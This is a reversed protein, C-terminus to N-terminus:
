EGESQPKLDMDKVDADDAPPQVEEVADDETNDKGDKKDTGAETTEADADTGEADKAAPDAMFDEDTEMRNEGAVKVQDGDKLGTPDQIVEDGESLGKTIVEQIGIKEMKVKTKKAVGDVYKFVYKEGNMELISEPPLVFGKRPISIQTSFGIQVDEEPEVIFGFKAAQSESQSPSADDSSGSGEGAGSGGGASGGGGHQASNSQPLRDYSTIKGKITRDEANIYMDVELDNELLHYNYEDVTGNVVLGQGIIRVFPVSGGDRGREDIYVQGAYDAKITPNKKEQARLLKIEVEKIQANVQRISSKISDADNGGSDPTQAGAGGAQGGSNTTNTRAGYDVGIPDTVVYRGQAYSWVIRDGMMNYTGGTLRSLDAILAERQNYLNTQERSLDELEHDDEKAAYTFLADGKQVQQGDSVHVQSITGIDSSYYYGKDIRSAVVGDVTAPEEPRVIVTNYTLEDSEETQENGGFAQCGALTLTSVVAMSGVIRKVSLWKKMAIGRRDISIM